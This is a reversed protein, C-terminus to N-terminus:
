EILSALAEKNKIERTWSIAGPRYTGTKDILAHGPYGNFSFYSSLEADLAEDIFFHIGPQQLKIVKSKWKNEDSGKLTCLYVFVVPLDKSEQQLKKSYPMEALCPGCWTAWLDVLIAKGPFSQKLRALFDAAKTNYVKYMDAGFPTHLLPKGLRTNSTDNASSAMIANIEDAEEATKKYMSALIAACWPTHVDKLVRGIAQKRDNVDSDSNLRLKLFDAKAVPFLSDLRRILTELSRKTVIADIRPKLLKTWKQSNESTYPYAHITKSITLSDIINKESINLDPLLRIEELNIKGVTGPLKQLYTLM